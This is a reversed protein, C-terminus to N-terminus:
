GYTNYLAAVHHTFGGKPFGAGVSLFCVRDSVKATMAVISLRPRCVFCGHVAFPTKVFAGFLLFVQRLYPLNTKM